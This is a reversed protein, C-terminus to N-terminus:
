ADFCAEETTRRQNYGVSPLTVKGADGLALRLNQLMGEATLARQRWDKVEKFLRDNNKCMLSYNTERDTLAGHVTELEDRTM